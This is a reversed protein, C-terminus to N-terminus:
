DELMISVMSDLMEETIRPIEEGPNNISLLYNRAKEQLTSGESAKVLAAVKGEIELKDKPLRVVNDSEKSAKINGFNSFCYDHYIDEESVGLVALILYAVIGTRDTGISCHFFLPYNNEDALANFIYPLQKEVVDRDSGPFGYNFLKVGKLVSEERIESSGSRLDLESKIGLEELMTKKGVATIYEKSSSSLKATRYLLGQKVKKGDVTTWGGLDRSNTVGGIRINRPGQSTTTFAAVASEVISDDEDEFSVKWYYTTGVYLNSLKYYEDSTRYTKADSFDAKTAVHVDYTIYPVYDRQNVNDYITWTLEVEKPFSQEDGLDEAKVYKTISDYTDNLYAAQLDSHIEVNDGLDALTLVYKPPEEPAQTETEDGDPEVVNGCSVASFLMAALLVLGIIRKFKNM